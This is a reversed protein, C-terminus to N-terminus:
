LLSENCLVRVGQLRWTYALAELRKARIGSRTMV